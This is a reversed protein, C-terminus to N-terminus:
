AWGAAGRPHRSLGGKGETASASRVELGAHLINARLLRLHADRVYEEVSELAENHVDTRLDKQKSVIVGKELDIRAELTGDEILRILEQVFPSNFDKPDATGGVVAPAFTKAM